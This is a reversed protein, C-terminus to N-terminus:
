PLTYFPEKETEHMRVVGDLTLAILIRSARRKSINVLSCFQKMTIRRHDKLYDTLGKEINTLQRKVLQPAGNELNKQVMKSAQVSEDDVRIYVKWDNHGCLAAHPKQLSEPVTVLLVTKGDDDIEEFELDIPPKCFFGAAKELMFKEEEADIGTVYGDDMVGVLLQGGLHNAFSVITKAIKEPHTIKKKFDLTPGEGQLILKDLINM